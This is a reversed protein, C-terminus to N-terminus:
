ERYQLTPYTNKLKQKLNDIEEHKNKKNKTHKESMKNSSKLVEENLTENIEKEEM